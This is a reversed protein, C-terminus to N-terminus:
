IHILSLTFLTPTILYLLHLNNKGDLAAKPERFTVYTSLAACAIVRGTYENTIRVYIETKDAGNFNIVEYKRANATNPLGIKQSFLTRGSTVLFQTNNSRMAGQSQGPLKVYAIAQFRGYKTLDYYDSLRIKKKVTQGAAIVM